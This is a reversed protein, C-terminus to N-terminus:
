SGCFTRHGSTDCASRCESEGRTVDLWTEGTEFSTTTCCGCEESPTDAICQICAEAEDAAPAPIADLRESSSELCADYQESVGGSPGFVQGLIVAERCYQELPDSCGAALLTLACWVRRNLM